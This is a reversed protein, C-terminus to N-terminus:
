NGIRDVFEYNYVFSEHLGIEGSLRKVENIADDERDTYGLVEKIEGDFYKSVILIIM